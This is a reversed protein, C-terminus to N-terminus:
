PRPPPSKQQFKNREKNRTQAAAWRPETSDSGSSVAIEAKAQTALRRLTAQIEARGAELQWFRLLLLDLQEGRLQHERQSKLPTRALKKAPWVALAPM